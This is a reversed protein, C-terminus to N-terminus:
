ETNSKNQEDAIKRGLGVEEQGIKLESDLDALKVFFNSEEFLM